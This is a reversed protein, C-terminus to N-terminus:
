QAQTATTDLSNKVKSTKLSLIIETFCKLIDSFFAVTPVLFKLSVINQHLYPKRFLQRKVKKRSKWRVFYITIGISFCIILSKQNKRFYSINNTNKWAEFKTNGVGNRFEAVCKM